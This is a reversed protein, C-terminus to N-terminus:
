LSFFVCLAKNKVSFFVCRKTNKETSIMEGRMRSACIAAQNMAVRRPHASLLWSLTRHRRQDRRANSQDESRMYVSSGEEGREDAVVRERSQDLGGSNVRACAEKGRSPIWRQPGVARCVHM